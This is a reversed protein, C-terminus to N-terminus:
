GETVIKMCPLSVTQQSSSRAKVLPKMKEDLEHCPLFNEWTNELIGLWDVSTHSSLSFNVFYTCVHPPFSKLMSPSERSHGKEKALLFLLFGLEKMLSTIVEWMGSFSLLPCELTYRYIYLSIYIYLCSLLFCLDPISTCTRIYSSIHGPHLGTM